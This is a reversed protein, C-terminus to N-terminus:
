TNHSSGDVSDIAPLWDCRSVELARSDFRRFPVVVDQDCLKICNFQMIVHHQLRTFNIKRHVEVGLQLM